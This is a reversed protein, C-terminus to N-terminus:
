IEKSQIIYSNCKLRIEKIFYSVLEIDFCPNHQQLECPGVSARASTETKEKLNKKGRDTRSIVKTRWLGLGTQSSLIINNGLKWSM